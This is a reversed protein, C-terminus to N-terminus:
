DFINWHASRIFCNGGDDDGPQYVTVVITDNDKLGQSGTVILEFELTDGTIPATFTPQAATPDSLTVASGSLQRWFYELTTGGEGDTSGTGDLTVDSSGVLVTQDEGADATPSTGDTVNVICIDVGEIGGNDTVTLEFELAGNQDPSTFTPQSATTDSLEVVVGSVQNWHYTITDGIDPDFSESGDLTVTINKAVTQTEGADAVPAQNNNSVNVSSSTHARLGDNDQVLLEFELVEGSAGVNPSMFTVTDLTTGSLTVSTGSVQVWSYSVISGDPDYSNKGNLVVPVGEDVTQTYPSISAIPMEYDDGAINVISTDTDTDGDNDTVTLQFTLSEPATSPATFTATATNEGSLTVSTGTGIQEWLYTEITGNEPPKSFTGNLTVLEGEDVQKDWGAHAIPLYEHPEVSTIAALADIDVGPFLEGTTMGAGGDTVRVYSYKEWLVVGSGLYADIDVGSTSGAISGVNVWTSGDKSIDINAPEVIGVEFIWLDDNSDGSTTLANDTFKLVIVGDDGLSVERINNETDDPIGLANEPNDYDDGVAPDDTYFVVEDVFSVPGEPIDVGKYIEAMATGNFLVALLIVMIASIFKKM